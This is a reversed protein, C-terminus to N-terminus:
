NTFMGKPIPCLQCSIRVGTCAPTSSSMWCPNHYPKGFSELATCNNRVQSLKKWFLIQSLSQRQYIKIIPCSCVIMAIGHLDFDKGPARWERATEIGSIGVQDQLLVAVSLLFFWLIFNSQSCLDSCPLATTRLRGWTTCGRLVAGWITTIGTM